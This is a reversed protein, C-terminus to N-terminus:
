LRHHLHAENYVHWHELSLYLECRSSSSSVFRRFSITSYQIIVQAAAGQAEVLLAASLWVQLCIQHAAVSLAGLRAVMSTSLTVTTAVAITRGM